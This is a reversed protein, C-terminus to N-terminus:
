LPEIPTPFGALRNCSCSGNANCWANCLATSSPWFVPMSSFVPKIDSRGRKFLLYVLHGIKHLMANSNSSMWKNNKYQITVYHFFFSRIELIVRAYISPIAANWFFFAKRIHFLCCVSYLRMLNNTRMEFCFLRRFEFMKTLHFSYSFHAINHISHENPACQDRSVDLSTNRTLALIHRLTPMELCM